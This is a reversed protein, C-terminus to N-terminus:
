SGRYFKEWLKWIENGVAEVEQDADIAMLYKKEALEDHGKILKQYFSDAEREFYDKTLGRKKQREYSTKADIKLYFSLDSRLSCPGYQHLKLIESCGIGRAHGQYAVSSAIYRDLIVINNEISLLPMVEKAILESRAAMFIFLEAYPNLAEKQGLILSRLDEGLKTGGPERFCSVKKGQQELRQAFNQIQTSKGCGEIGEFTILYSNKAISGRDQNSERQMPRLM